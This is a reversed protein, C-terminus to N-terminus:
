KKRFDLLGPVYIKRWEIILIILSLVFVTVALYFLTGRDGQVEIGLKTLHFSIAGSIIGLSLGAGIWTTRPILVLTAAIVELIGIGIRGSAGLNTQEFIYVSDPHATFKFYLTQVLIIALIVKIIWFVVNKM